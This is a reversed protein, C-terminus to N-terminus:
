LNLLSKEGDELNNYTIQARPPAPTKQSSVSRKAWLLRETGERCRIEEVKDCAEEEL